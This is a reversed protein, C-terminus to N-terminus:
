RACTLSSARLAIWAETVRWWWRENKLRENKLLVSTLVKLYAFNRGDGAHTRGHAPGGGKKRSQCHHRHRRARAGSSPIREFRTSPPGGNSRSLPHRGTYLRLSERRRGRVKRPLPEVKASFPLCLVTPEKPPLDEQQVRGSYVIMRTGGFDMGLRLGTPKADYCKAEFPTLATYM